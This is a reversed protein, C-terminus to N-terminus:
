GYANVSRKLDPIGPLWSLSLGYFYSQLEQNVLYSPTGIGPSAIRQDPGVPVDFILQM